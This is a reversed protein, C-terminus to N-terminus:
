FTILDDPEVLIGNRIMLDIIANATKISGKSKGTRINSFTHACFHEHPPGLERIMKAMESWPVNHGLSAILRGRLIELKRPNIQM